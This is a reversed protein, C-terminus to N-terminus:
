NLKLRMHYVPSVPLTDQSCDEDKPPDEETSEPRKFFSVRFQPMEPKEFGTSLFM